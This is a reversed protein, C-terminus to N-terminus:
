KQAHLKNGSAFYGLLSASYVYGDKDFNLIHPATGGSGWVGEHCLVLM